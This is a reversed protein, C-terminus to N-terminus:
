LKTLQFFSSRPMCQTLVDLATLIKTSVKEHPLPVYEFSPDFLGQRCQVSREWAEVVESLIRPEISPNEHIVGLWLSVGLKITEKTFIRFPLAVLYHVVSLRPKSSSCILGAAQRLLDRVEILPIDEGNVSRGYIQSLTAELRDASEPSMEAEPPHGSTGFLDYNPGHLLRMDPRRYKQRTTYLAMFDSALNVDSSDHSDLSSLRPDSQPILSGMELAFSRGMSIHGYGGDDDYESLYTQLLGQIDLPAINLVATVWAKAHGLFRDLTV